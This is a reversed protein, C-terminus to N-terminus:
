SKTLFLSEIWGPTSIERLEKQLAEIRDQVAGDLSRPYVFAEFPKPDGNIEQNFALRLVRFHTIAKALLDAQDPDDILGGKSTVLKEIEKELDLIEEIIRRDSDSLDVRQGNEYIKNPELLHTLTRFDNPKNAKLLTNFEYIIKIYSNLPGYFENLKKTISERREKRKSEALSARNYVFTLVGVLLAVGSTILASYITFSQTQNDSSQDTNSKQPPTSEFAAPLKADSSHDTQVSLLDIHTSPSKEEVFQLQDAAM